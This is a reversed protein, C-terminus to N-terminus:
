METMLNCKTECELSVIKVNTVLFASIYVVVSLQATIKVCTLNSFIQSLKADNM